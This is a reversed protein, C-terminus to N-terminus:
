VQRIVIKISSAGPKPEVRFAIILVLLLEERFM